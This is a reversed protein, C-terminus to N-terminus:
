SDKGSAARQDIRGGVIMCYAWMGGFVAGIFFMAPLVIGSAFILAQLGWGFGAGIPSRMLGIGIVMLVLLIGGVILASWAPLGLTTNQTPALGWAVLAGLFVVVVEFTLVIMGLSRRVSRPPRPAAASTDPNPDNTAM